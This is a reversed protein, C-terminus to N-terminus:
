FGREVFGMARLVMGSCKRFGKEPSAATACAKMEEVEESSAGLLSFRPPHAMDEVLRQLGEREDEYRKAAAMTALVDGYGGKGGDSGDWRGRQWELALILKIEEPNEPENNAALLNDVLTARAEQTHYLERCIAACDHGTGQAYGWNWQPSTWGSGRIGYIEKMAFALTEDGWSAIGLLGLLFYSVIM